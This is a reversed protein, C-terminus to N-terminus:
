CYFATLRHVLRGHMILADAAQQLKHGSELPVSDSLPSLQIVSTPSASHDSVAALLNVCSIFAAGVFNSLHCGSMGKICAILRATILAVVLRHSMILFLRQVDGCKKCASTARENEFRDDAEYEHECPEEGPVVRAQECGLRGCVLQVQFTPVNTTARHSRTSPQSRTCCRAHM